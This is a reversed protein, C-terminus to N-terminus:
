YFHLTEMKWVYNLNVGSARIEVRFFLQCGSVPLTKKKWRITFTRSRDCSFSSHPTTCQWLAAEKAPLLSSKLPISQDLHISTQSVIYGYICIYIYRYIYIKIYVHIMYRLAWKIYMCVFIHISKQSIFSIDRYQIMYTYILISPENIHYIYIHIYAYLWIYGRWTVTLLLIIYSMNLYISCTLFDWNLGKQPMM